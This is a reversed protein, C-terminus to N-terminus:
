LGFGHFVRDGAEASGIGFLNEIPQTAADEHMADTLTPVAGAGDPEINGSSVGDDTRVESHLALAYDTYNGRSFLELAPTGTALGVDVTDGASLGASALLPADAQWTADIFGAMGAAPPVPISETLPPLMGELVPEVAEAAEGAVAGTLDIASGLTHDVLPQMTGQVDSAVEQTASIVAGAGDVVPVVLGSLAAAASGAVEELPALTESIDPQLADAVNGVISGLQTASDLVSETAETISELSGVIPPVVNNVLPLVTTLANDVIGFIPSTIDGVM